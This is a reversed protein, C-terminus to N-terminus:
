CRPHTLKHTNKANEKQTKQTQDMLRFFQVKEMEDVSDLHWFIPLNQPISSRIWRTVVNSTNCINGTIKKKKKKEDTESNQDDNLTQKNQNFTINSKSLPKTGNIINKGKRKRKITHNNQNPFNQHNMCHMTLGQIIQSVM